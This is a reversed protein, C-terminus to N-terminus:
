EFAINNSFKYMFYSYILGQQVSLVALTVARADAKPM